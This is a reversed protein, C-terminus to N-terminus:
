KQFVRVYDVDMAVPLASEDVGKYGGWAGGWVLNLIIYFPQDFPWSNYGGGDNRYALIPQGDVYFRLESATWECAYVHFGGEATDLYVEGHETPTGGNNYRNCHITSSVYGPDAGVEEMIDIEGDGPWTTFRVPMMWFAPWTGKGRPLKIRAEFYGYQWGTQVKAYVRGSYIQGNSAKFCSIRLRGDTLETVRQSGAAGNVYNQLENNVWGAPKVEHTWDAPDLRTSRNFEDHWALTYGEPTTIDTVEASNQVVTIDQQKDGSVVTVTATRDDLSTNPQTAILVARGDASVEAKLWSADTRVSWGSGATVGIRLTEGSSLATVQTQEVQLAPAQTVPITVRRTRAQVIVNGSRTQNQANADVAVTVAGQKKHPETVSVHLWPKSQTDTFAEWDKTSSSVDLTFTGGAATAELKEPSCSVAPAAGKDSESGSCGCLAACVPALFALILKLKRM